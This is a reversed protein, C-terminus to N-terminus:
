APEEQRNQRARPVSYIRTEVCVGNVVRSETVLTCQYKDLATKIEADCNEARIRDLTVINDRM